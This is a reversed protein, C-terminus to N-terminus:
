VKLYRGIMFDFAVALCLCTNFFYKGCQWYRLYNCNKIIKATSTAQFIHVAFIM